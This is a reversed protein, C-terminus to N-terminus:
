TTAGTGLVSSLDPLPMSFHRNQLVLGTYQQLDEAAFVYKHAMRVILANIERVRSKTATQLPKCAEHKGLLVAKRSLPFLLEAGLDARGVGVVGLDRDNKERRVFAPADSTIFSLGKDAKWVQWHMDSIIRAYRPMARLWVDLMARKAVDLSFEATGASIRERADDIEEPSYSELLM